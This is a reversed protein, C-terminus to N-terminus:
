NGPPNPLHKYSGEFYSGTAVSCLYVQCAGVMSTFAVMPLILFWLIAQAPDDMQLVVEFPLGNCRKWIWFGSDRQIQDQSLNWVYNIYNDADKFRLYYSIVNKVFSFAVSSFRRKGPKSGGFLFLRNNAAALVPSMLGTPTPSGAVSTALKQWTNMSICYSFLEAFNSTSSSGFSMLTFRGDM